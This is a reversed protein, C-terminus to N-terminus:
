QFFCCSNADILCQVTAQNSLSININHLDFRNPQSTFATSDNHTLQVQCLNRVTNHNSELYRMSITIIQM